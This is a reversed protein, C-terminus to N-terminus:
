RVWSLARLVVFAQGIHAMFRTDEVESPATGLPLGSAILGVSARESYYTVALANPTGDLEARSRTMPAMVLRNSLIYRGVRVPSFLQSM